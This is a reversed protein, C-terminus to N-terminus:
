PVQVALLAVDDSLEGLDSTLLDILAQPGAGCLDLNAAAGTPLQARLTECAADTAMVVARPRYREVQLAM